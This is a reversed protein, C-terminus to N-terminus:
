NFFHFQAFILMSFLSYLPEGTMYSEAMLKMAKKYESPNIDKISYKVNTTTSNLWVKGLGVSRPRKWEANIIGAFFVGVLVLIIFKRNLM